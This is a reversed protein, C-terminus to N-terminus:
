LVWWPTQQPLQPGNVGSAANPEATSPATKDAKCGCVLVTISLIAFVIIKKM